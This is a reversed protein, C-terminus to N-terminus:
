ERNAILSAGKRVLASTGATRRMTLVLNGAVTVVIGGSILARQTLGAPQGFNMDAALAVGYGSALASVTLRTFDFQAMTQTGSFTLQGIQDTSGVWEFGIAATIAWNGPTLPITLITTNSTTYATDATTIDVVDTDDEPASPVATGLAGLVVCKPGIPLVAVQLGATLTDNSFSIAPLPVSTGEVVVQLPDPSASVVRGIFPQPTASKDVLVQMATLQDDELAM